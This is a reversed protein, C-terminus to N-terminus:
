YSSSILTSSNKNLLISTDLASEVDEMEVKAPPESNLILEPMEELVRKGPNSGTLKKFHQNIRNNEFDDEEFEREIQWLFDDVPPAPHFGERIYPNKSQKIAEWIEEKRSVMGEVDLFAQTLDIQVKSKFIDM